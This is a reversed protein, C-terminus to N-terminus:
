LYSFNLGSTFIFTCNTYFPQLYSRSNEKSYYFCLIEMRYICFYTKLYFSFSIYNLAIYLLYESWLLPTTLNHSYAVACINLKNIEVIFFHAILFYFKLSISSFKSDFMLIVIVPVTKFFIFKKIKFLLLHSNKFFYFRFILLSIDIFNFIKY